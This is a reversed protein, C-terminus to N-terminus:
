GSGFTFDFAARLAASVEDVGASHESGCLERALSVPLIGAASCLSLLLPVRNTAVCQECRALWSTVRDEVAATRAAHLLLVDLFTGLRAVPDACPGHRAHEEDVILPCFNSCSAAAVFSPFSWWLPARVSFRNAVLMKVELDYVHAPTVSANAFAPDLLLRREVERDRNFSRAALSLATAVALPQSRPGAVDLPHATAFHQLLHMATYRIEPHLAHARAVSIVLCLLRRHGRIFTLPLILGEDATTRAITLLSRLQLALTIPLLAAADPAVPEGVVRRERQVQTVYSCPVTPASSTM